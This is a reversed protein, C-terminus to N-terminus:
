HNLTYSALIKSHILIQAIESPSEPDDKKLWHGIISVIESVLLDNAYDDPIQPIKKITMHQYQQSIEHEILDYLKYVFQSDGNKSLLVKLTFRNKNLFEFSQIFSRYPSNDGIQTKLNSNNADDLWSMTKNMNTQMLKEVHNLLYSEIKELVDYKDLYYIYFTGRSLHATRTIDSVTVNNLGKEAVLTVFANMIRQQTVKNKEQRNM